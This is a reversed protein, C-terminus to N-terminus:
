KPKILEAVEALVRKHYADYDDPNAPSETSATFQKGITPAPQPKEATPTPQPKQATTGQARELKAQIRKAAAPDRMVTYVLDELEEAHQRFPENPERDGTDQAHQRFRAIGAQIIGAGFKPHAGLARVAAVEDGLEGLLTNRVYQIHQEATRAEEAAATRQQEVQDRRKLETQTAEYLRRLEGIETQTRLEAPADKGMSAALVAEAHQRGPEIGHERLIAIADGRAKAQEIRAQQAQAAEIQRAFTQRQTEFQQRDRQLAVQAQRQALLKRSTSEDLAPAAPPAAAPPTAPTAAAPPPSAVPAAAAAEPAAEAGGSIIAAMEAHVQQMDSM